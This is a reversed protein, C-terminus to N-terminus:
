PSPSISPPTWTAPASSPSRPAARTRPSPTRRAVDFSFDQLRVAGSFTLTDVEGAAAAPWALSALVSLLAVAPLWRSRAITMSM